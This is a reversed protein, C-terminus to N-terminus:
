TQKYGPPMFTMLYNWIEMYERAAALRPNHLPNGADVRIRWNNVDAAEVASPVLCIATTLYLLALEAWEPIYVQEQTMTLQYVPKGEAGVNTGLVYEVKPWKAWYYLEVERADDIEEQLYLSGGWVWYELSSEDTLRIDGPRLPMPCWWAEEEPDYIGEMAYFDAPLLATRGASDAVKLTTKRQRPTHYLFLGQSWNWASVRLEADYTPQKVTDDANVAEADDLLLDLKNNLETWTTTM